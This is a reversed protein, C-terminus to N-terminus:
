NFIGYISSQRLYWNLSVNYLQLLFPVEGGLFNFIGAILVILTRALTCTYARLCAPVCVYVHTPTSMYMCVCLM